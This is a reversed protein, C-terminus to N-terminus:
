LYTYIEIWFRLFVKGIPEEARWFLANRVGTFTVVFGGVPLKRWQISRYSPFDSTGHLVPYLGYM